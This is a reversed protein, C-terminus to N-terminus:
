CSWRQTTPSGRHCKQLSGKSGMPKIRLNRLNGLNLVCPCFLQESRKASTETYDAYDTSITESKGRKRSKGNYHRCKRVLRACKWDIVNPRLVSDADPGIFLAGANASIRGIQINARRGELGAVSTF